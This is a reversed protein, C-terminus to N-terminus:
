STVPEDDAAALRHRMLRVVISALANMAMSALFAWAVVRPWRASQAFHLAALTLALMTIFSNIGVNDRWRLSPVLGPAVVFVQLLIAAVIPALITAAGAHLVGDLLAFTFSSACVMVWGAVMHSEMASQDRDIALALGPQPRPGSARFVGYAILKFIAFRHRSPLWRADSRGRIVKM